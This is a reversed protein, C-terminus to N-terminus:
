CAKSLTICSKSSPSALPPTEPPQPARRKLSRLSTRSQSFSKARNLSVPPYNSDSNNQQRRHVSDSRPIYRRGTNSTNDSSYSPDACGTHYHNARSNMTSYAASGTRALHGRRRHNTNDDDVEPQHQLNGISM